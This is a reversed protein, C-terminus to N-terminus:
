PIIVKKERPCIGYLGCHTAFSPSHREINSSGEEKLMAPVLSVALRKLYRMKVGCLVLSRSILANLTLEPVTQM